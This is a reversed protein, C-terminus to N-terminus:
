RCYLFNYPWGEYKTILLILLLLLLNIFVFNRNSFPCKRNKQKDEALIKHHIVNIPLTKPLLNAVRSFSKKECRFYCRSFTEFLILFFRETVQEKSCKGEPSNEPIKLDVHTDARLLVRVM